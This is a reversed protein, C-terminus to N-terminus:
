EDPSGDKHAGTLRSVWVFVLAATAIALATSLVLAIAIGAANDRFLGLHAVVGVGAPVFFLSLSGLLASAAPRLFGILGPRLLGAVVLLVLGIVPGPLTLGLGHSLMEGVLQFCLIIALAPIM